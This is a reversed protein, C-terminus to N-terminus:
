NWSPGEFDADTWGGWDGGYNNAIFFPTSKSKTPADTIPTYDSPINRRLENPLENQGYRFDPPISLMERRPQEQRPSEKESKDTIIYKRRKEDEVFKQYLPHEKIYKLEGDEYPYAPAM